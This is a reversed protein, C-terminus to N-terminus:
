RVGSHDHRLSGGSRDDNHKDDGSHMGRMMFIMMMPCALIVAVFALTALPVGLWLGGVFAIAAAIAYQGYNRSM